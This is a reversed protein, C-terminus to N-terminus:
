DGASAGADEDEDENIHSSSHSVDKGLRSKEDSSVHKKEHQKINIPTTTETSLMSAHLQKLTNRNRRLPAEM